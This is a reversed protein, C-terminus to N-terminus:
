DVMAKGARVPVFATKGKEILVKGTFGQVEIGYEDAPLALIAYGMGDSRVVMRQSGRRIEVAAGSFPINGSQNQLKGGTRQIYCFVVLAGTGPPLKDERITEHAKGIAPILGDRQYISQGQPAADERFEKGDFIYQKWQKMSDKAGYSLSFSVAAILLFTIIHKIM